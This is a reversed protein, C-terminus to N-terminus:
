DEEWLNLYVRRYRGGLKREKIIDIYDELQGRTDFSSIVLWVKEKIQFQALGWMGNIGDEFTIM